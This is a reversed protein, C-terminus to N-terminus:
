AAKKTPKKALSKIQAESLGTIRAVTAADMGEDLMKKAVELKVFKEANTVIPMNKEDETEKIEYVLKEELDMPLTVIWDIFKYLQRVDEKTYGKRYLSKILTFKWLYKKANDNKAEM